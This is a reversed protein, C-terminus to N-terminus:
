APPDSIDPRPGDHPKRCVVLFGNGLGRLRGRCHSELRDSLGLGLRALRRHLPPPLVNFDFFVLDQLAMGQACLWKRYDRVTHYQHVSTASIKTRTVRQYILRDWANHPSWANCGSLILLGGPKLVRVFERVVAAEDHVYELMGLCLVVDFRGEPYNLRAADGVDFRAGPVGAFRRRCEAIMGPSIDLGQYRIGKQVLLEVIPGPGCGVELLDGGNVGELCEMVRRVRMNFYHAVPSAGSYLGAYYSAQQDFDQAVRLSHM